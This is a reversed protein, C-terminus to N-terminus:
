DRRRWRVIYERASVEPLFRRHPGTQSILSSLKEAAVIGSLLEASVLQDLIWISGHCPVEEVGAAGRLQGDGSLLLADNEVALHLVAADASSIGAYKGQYSMIMELPSALEKIQSSEIYALSQSHQGNELEIVVLDSTITEYGLQFWLDLVGMYEMDIFINADKVAIQQAM